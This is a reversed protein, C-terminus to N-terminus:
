GFLQANNAILLLTRECRGFIVIVKADASYSSPNLMVEHNYRRIGIFKEKEYPILNVKANIKSAIYNQYLIDADIKEENELPIYIINPVKKEGNEHQEQGRKFTMFSVLKLDEILAGGYKLDERQAISLEYMPSDIKIKKDNIQKKTSGLKRYADLEVKNYYLVGTVSEGFKKYSESDKKFILTSMFQDKGIIEYLDECCFIPGWVEVFQTGLM